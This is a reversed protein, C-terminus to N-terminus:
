ALDGNLSLDQRLIIPPSYCLITFEELRRVHISAPVQVCVCACLVCVYLHFYLFLTFAMSELMLVSFSDLWSNILDDAPTPITKAVTVLSTTSCQLSYVVSYQISSVCWHLKAARPGPLSGISHQHDWFLIHFM